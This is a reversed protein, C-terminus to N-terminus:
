GWALVHGMVNVRSTTSATSTSIFTASSTRQWLGGEGFGEHGPGCCRESSTNVSEQQSSAFQDLYATATAGDHGLQGQMGGMSGDSLRRIDAAEDRSMIEDGKLRHRQHLRLHVGYQLFAECVDEHLIAPIERHSRLLQAIEIVLHVIADQYTEVVRFLPDSCHLLYEKVDEWPGGLLATAVVGRGFSFRAAAIICNNRRKVARSPVRRRAQFDSLLPQLRELSTRLNSSSGKGVVGVHHNGVGLCIGEDFGTPCLGRPPWTVNLM